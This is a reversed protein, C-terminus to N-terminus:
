YNFKFMGWFISITKQQKTVEVKKINDVVVVKKDKAIPKSVEQEKSTNNSKSDIWKLNTQRNFHILKDAMKLNPKISNWKYGNDYKCLLKSKLITFSNINSIRHKRSIKNLSVYYVNENTLSYIENLFNLVNQRTIEPRARM